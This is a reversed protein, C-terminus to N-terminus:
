QLARVQSSFSLLMVAATGIYVPPLATPTGSVNVLLASANTAGDYVSLVDGPQTALSSLAFRVPYAGAARVLATCTVGGPYGGGSRSMTAGTYGSALDVVAHGSCNNLMVFVPNTSLTATFGPGIGASDSAFSVTLQLGTSWYVGTPLHPTGSLQALVPSSLSGGDRLTVNDVGAQTSFVTFAVGIPLLSTITVTCNMNNAYNPSPTLLLTTTDNTLFLAAPGPCGTSLTYSGSPAMTAIFGSGVPLPGSRFVVTMYHGASAFRLAAAASPSSPLVTAGTVSGIVAAASTTGDYLTVSDSASMNLATFTLTATTAAVLVASCTTNAAYTGLPSAALLFVPSPLYLFNPGPCAASLYAISTSLSASLATSAPLLFSPGSAGTFQLVLSLSTATSVYSTLLSTNSLQALTTGTVAGGDVVTVNMAGSPAAYTNITISVQPFPTFVNRM